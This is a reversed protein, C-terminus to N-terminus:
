SISNQQNVNISGEFFTSLRGKSVFDYSRDVAINRAEDHAVALLTIPSTVSSAGRRFAKGQIVSAVVKDNPTLAELYALVDAKVVDNTSGGVYNMDFNIYTPFLHRVLISATLVRDLDSSAFSQISSVIDAQEYEIQINQGALPVKQQPSDSLGVPLYESPLIMTVQEQTSYSLNTDAVVLRYGDSTYGTVVFVLGEPINWLDGSGESMLAIDVYKLGSETQKDMDTSSIRQMGPRIIRFHNAQNSYGSPTAPPTPMVQIQYPNAPDYPRAYVAGVTYVGRAYSENDMAVSVFGLMTTANGTTLVTIPVDAELRLFQGSYNEIFAVPAGGVADNIEQILTDPTNVNASFTVTTKKGDVRLVFTQGVIAYPTPGAFLTQLDVTGQLPQYTVEVLDGVQLGAQVFNIAATRSDHGLPDAPTADSTIVGVGSVATFTLNNPIVTNGSEPIITHKSTPDPIFRLNSGNITTTFYTVPVEDLTAGGDEGVAAANASYSSSDKLAPHYAGHTEFSVPDLFYVRATGMSRAGISLEVDIAPDPFRVTGAEEDFSVVLLKHNIADITVLYYNGVTEGTTICVVDTAEQLNYMPDEWPFSLDSACKIQRNDEGDALGVSVGSVSEVRLWRDSSRITLYLESNDGALTGAINPITNNIIQLVADPSTAGTLTILQAGLDNVLVSITSAALPYVTSGVPTARLDVNGVIGLIGDEITLKEGNGGNSFISSRADVPDGRPIIQGTSAGGSDLRSVSKIRVLPLQIGAQPQFVEWSVATNTATTPRSLSLVRNNTGSFATISYDGADPGTLIRLVDGVEIGFEVFNVLDLTTFLNELQVTQGSVGSVKLTKPSVLDIDLEDTISYQIDARATSFADTLLYHPSEAGTSDIGVQWIRRTGADTGIPVVLSMGPKVGSAVFDVNPDEFYQGLAGVGSDIAGTNSSLVPKGDTIASLNLDLTNTGSGRVYFDTCGGIHVQDSQIAVAQADASYVIGGPMGSITLEKKRITWSMLNTTLPIPTALKLETSGMLAAIQTQRQARLIVWSIGTGIVGAFDLGTLPNLLIVITPSLVQRIMFRGTNTSSTAKTLAILAGVDDATFHASNSRFMNSATADVHGDTGYSVENTLLYMDEVLGMSFTTTLNHDLYTRFRTTTSGGDGDDEVFGDNGSVLPAGLDGGTLVDRHMETDFMGVIQLQELDNFQDFLRATVGRPVVLSRETISDSARQILDTTSEQDLGNEFKALNTAKVAVNLNTIGVIAQPDINYQAGPTDATVSIDFYYLSGSQNFVMAEASITQLTTPLFRLSDATYCVNGVSINLAIPANFFLRVRGVSLSGLNRSVFFNAVLADAETDALLDPNALSQGQKILQVERSIPDMLIQDPKVLLDRVGTGEQINMDPFEQKLRAEIFDEISM